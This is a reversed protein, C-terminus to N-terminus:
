GNVTGKYPQHISVIRDACRRTGTRYMMEQQEYLQQIVWFKRLLRAPLPNSPGPLADLLRHIHKLDRRVYQLQQKIGKRVKKASPRRQKVIALYAKRATQRYTRPKKDWNTLPYLVDIIQESIERSENLLGLDTPYRIAQEVVTADLILKGQPTPASEVTGQDEDATPATDTELAQRHGGQHPPDQQYGGDSQRQVHADMANLIAQHFHAFTAAGM